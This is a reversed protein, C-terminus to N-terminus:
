FTTIIGNVYKSILTADTIDVDADRNVDAAKLQQTDLTEMEALYKQILTADSVTVSGDKNVDGLQLTKVTSSSTKSTGNYTITVRIYQNIDGSKLVYNKATAGSINTWSTGNGSRQWQYAVSSASGYTFQPTATLTQEVVLIGTIAAGTLVDNVQGVAASTVPKGIVNVGSTTNPTVTVRIYKNIDSSTLVYTKSTAGSISTWGSSVSSSREWQYIVNPSVVTGLYTVNATLTKGPTLSTSPSISVTNIPCAEFRAQINGSSVTTSNMDNLVALVAEFTSGAPVKVSFDMELVLQESTFDFGGSIKVSNYTIKGLTNPNYLFTGSELLPANITDAILTVIASNYNIVGQISEVKCGSKLFYRLRVIDGFTNNRSISIKNLEAASATVVTVTSFCLTLILLLIVIKKIKM